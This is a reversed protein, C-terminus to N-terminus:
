MSSRSPAFTPCSTFSSASFPRWPPSMVAMAKCSPSSQPPPFTIMLLKLSLYVVVVFFLLVVVLHTGKAMLHNDEKVGFDTEKKLTGEKEEEEVKQRIKKELETVRSRYRRDGTLASLYRYELVQHAWESLLSQRDSRRRRKKCNKSKSSSRPPRRWPWSSRHENRAESAQRSEPRLQGDIQTAKELFLDDGTLAYCSLLSGIHHSVLITSTTQSTCASGNDGKDNDDSRFASMNLHSAIWARGQEFERKLGMVWLTSMSAVITGGSTALISGSFNNTKPSLPRLLEAGWAHERYAAWAEATMNAIFQRRYAPSSTNVVVLPKDDTSHVDKKTDYNEEDENWYRYFFSALPRRELFNSFSLAEQKECSFGSFLSFFIFFLLVVPVRLTMTTTTTTEASTLKSTACKFHQQNIQTSAKRTILLSTSCM